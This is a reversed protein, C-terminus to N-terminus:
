LEFCLTAFPVCGIFVLQILEARPACIKYQIIITVITVRITKQAAVEYCQVRNVRALIRTFTWENQKRNLVMTEKM